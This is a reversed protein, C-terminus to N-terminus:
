SHGIARIELLIGLPGALSQPPLGHNSSRKAKRSTLLTSLAHLCKTCLTQGSLRFSQKLTRNALSVGTRDLPALIGTCSRHCLETYEFSYLNLAVPVAGHLNASRIQQSLREDFHVNEFLGDDVLPITEKLMSSKANAVVEERSTVAITTRGAGLTNV